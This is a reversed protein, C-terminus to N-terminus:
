PKRMIRKAITMLIATVILMYVLVVTLFAPDFEGDSMALNAANMWDGIQNVTTDVLWKLPPIKSLIFFSAVFCVVFLMLNKFM